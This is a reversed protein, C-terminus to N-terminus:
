YNDKVYQICIEYWESKQSFYNCSKITKFDIEEVLRSWTEDDINDTIWLVFDKCSSYEAFFYQNYGDWDSINDCDKLTKYWKEFAYYFWDNYYSEQRLQEKFEKKEFVKKVIPISNYLYNGLILSTLMLIFTFIYRILEGWLWELKIIKKIFLLFINKWEYKEIKEWYIIVIIFPLYFFFWSIFTSLWILFDDM